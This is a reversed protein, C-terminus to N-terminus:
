CSSVAFSKGDHHYFFGNLFNYSTIINSNTTNQINNKVYKQRAHRDLYKVDTSHLYKLMEPLTEHMHPIIFEDLDVSFLYQYENMNRYFCDNLSSMVGRNSIRANKNKFKTVLDWPLISVMNEKQDYYKLVCSINESMSENYVIFKSVGLIKNVEIFSILEVWDDYNSHIPKVCLGVENKTAAYTGTGGNESNIVHLKYDIVSGSSSRPLITVAFPIRNTLRPNKPDHIPCTIDCPQHLNSKFKKPVFGKRALFRRARLLMVEEENRRVKIKGHVDWFSTDDNMIGSNSNDNKSEVNEMNQHYHLRCLVKEPNMSGTVGFVRIIPKDTKRVDYYASYVMFEHAKFGKM